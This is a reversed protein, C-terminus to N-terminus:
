QNISDQAEVATLQPEDLEKRETDASKKYDRAKKEIDKFGM